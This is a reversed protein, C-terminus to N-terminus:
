GGGTDKKEIFSLQGEPELVALQVDRLDSIGQRRAAMRLDDLTMRQMRMVAELPVGDRVVIAASGSIAAGFRRPSRFQSYALLVVWFVFTGVAMFAGTLSFDEQTVGQQVLDGIAVLLILDFPSMQALERKGIGRMVLWLFWYMVTARIVIEM